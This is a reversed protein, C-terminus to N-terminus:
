LAIGNRGLMEFMGLTDAGVILTGLTEVLETPPPEVPILMGDTGVILVGVVPPPEDPPVAPVVLLGVIAAPALGNEVGILM